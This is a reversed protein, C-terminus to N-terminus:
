LEKSKYENKIIENMEDPTLPFDLELWKRILGNIGSEYFEIHYDIFFDDFLKGNLNINWKKFNIRKNSNLIFYSKYLEKNNYIHNFLKLTIDQTSKEKTFLEIIQKEIKQSLSDALEIIDKYNAYFTSRNIKTITCIDTVTIEKLEKKKILKLLSTEIKEITDKKRKNNVTNM